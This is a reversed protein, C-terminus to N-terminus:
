DGVAVAEEAKVKEAIRDIRWEELQMPSGSGGLRFMLIEAIISVAIEDPTRGNIGLGVPARIEKVRDLPVGNRILDEYILIIKRKSGLLGVYKAPTHAAAELAVNDYRHGRTAIIVFTNPNVPLEPFAEEPKM